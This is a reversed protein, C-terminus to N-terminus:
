SKKPGPLKRLTKITKARVQKVFHDLIEHGHAVDGGGIRHVSEPSVVWEGGAAVIDATGPEGGDAFGKRGKMMGATPMKMAHPHPMAAGGPGMGFLKNLAQAGAISNGQGVGSVVDAPIVYSNKGVGMPIRDTRGAVPSHIMGSHELQRASSRITFPIAGGSAKRARRQVDLAIAIAARRPKGSGVERKINEGVAKRSASKILPM